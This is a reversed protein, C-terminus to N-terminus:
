VVKSIDENKIKESIVGLEKLRTGLLKGMTEYLENLTPFKKCMQILETQVSHVVEYLERQASSFKGSIPWTRTIDSCYGHYECGIIQFLFVHMM